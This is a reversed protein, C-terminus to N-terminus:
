SSNYFRLNTLLFPLAIMSRVAQSSFLQTTPTWSCVPITNIGGLKVNIKLCVNAYYQPKVRYCKSSKLCQIAVGMSLPFESSGRRLECGLIATTQEPDALLLRAGERMSLKNASAFSLKKLVRPTRHKQGDPGLHTTLIRIGSIFRQLCLRKRDPLGHTPSLTNPNDKKIPLPLSPARKTCQGPPTPEKDKKEKRLSPMKSACTPEPRPGRRSRVLPQVPEASDPAGGARRAHQPALLPPPWSVLRYPGHRNPASLPLSPLLRRRLLPFFLSAYFYYPFLFPHFPPPSILPRPPPKARVMGCRRCRSADAPNRIEGNTVLSSYSRSFDVADVAPKKQQPLCNHHQPYIDVNILMKGIGPRVSQFYGRGLPCTLRFNIPISIFFKCLELGAGIDKTERDTFFSRVNFPYSLGPQMHIVANLATSAALITNDHSAKGEIFCHLVEPNIRAVLSLKIKYAEPGNGTASAHEPTAGEDDAFTEFIGSPTDHVLFDAM